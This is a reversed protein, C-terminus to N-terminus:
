VLQFRPWGSLLTLADFRKTVNAIIKTSKTSMTSMKLFWRESFWVVILMWGVGVLTWVSNNVLMVKVVMLKM